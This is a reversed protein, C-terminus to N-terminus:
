LQGSAARPLHTRTREDTTQNDRAFPFNDALTEIEVFLDFVGLGNREFLSSFLSATCGGIDRKLWVRMMPARRGAGFSENLGPYSSHDRGDFVRVRQDATFAKRPKPRRADLHMRTQERAFRRSEILRVNIRYSVRAGEYMEFQGGREVSFNGGVGPVRAPYGPFLRASANM